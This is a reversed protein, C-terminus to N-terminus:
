LHLLVPDIFCRSRIFEKEQGMEDRVRVKVSRNGPYNKIIISYGDPSLEGDINSTSDPTLQLDILETAQFDLYLQHWKNGESDVYPDPNTNQGIASQVYLCACGILIFRLSKM